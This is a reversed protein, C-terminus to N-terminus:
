LEVSELKKTIEAATQKIDDGCSRILEDNFRFCPASINIAGLVKGSRDFIPAAVGATGNGIENSSFSIGKERIRTLEEDSPRHGGEIMMVTSRQKHPLWALIAKGVSGRLLSREQGIPYAERVAKTSEIRDICICKYNQYIYLNVNEDFKGCLRQLYPHVLEILSSNYTACEGLQRVVAGLAYKKSEPDRRLFGSHELTYLLRYTNTVSRGIRKSLETLTLELGQRERFCLLVQLGYDLTQLLVEDANNNM